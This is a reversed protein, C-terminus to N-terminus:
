SAISVWGARMAYLALEVRNSIGLKEFVHRLHTRVTGESVHVREAIQQNSLGEAVLRSIELERETLPPPPNAVVDTLELLSRTIEHHLYTQGSHVARVARGIEDPEFSKSVYGAAGARVAELLLEDGTLSSMLLVRVRQFRSCISRTAEVGNLEPMIVDMLVVDPRLRTTQELAERGSGALGLVKFGPAQELVAQMGTRVIPHDDVILLGITEGDEADGRQAAAVTDLARDVLPETAAPTVYTRGAIIQQLAFVFESPESSASLYANAGASFVETVTDAPSVLVILRRQSLFDALSQRM